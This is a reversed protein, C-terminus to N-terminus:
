RNRVPICLGERAHDDTKGSPVAVKLVCGRPDGGFVPTFGEPLVELVRARTRCNQCLGSKAITSADWYNGCNTCEITERQGNDAPWDGNCQAVALRHLTQAARLIVRLAPIDLGEETLLAVTEDRDLSYSM